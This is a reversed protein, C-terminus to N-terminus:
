LGARHRHAFEPASCRSLKQCDPLGPEAEQEAGAAQGVHGSAQLRRTACHHFSRECAPTKTHEAMGHRASCTNFSKMWSFSFRRIWSKGQKSEQRHAHSTQKSFTTM